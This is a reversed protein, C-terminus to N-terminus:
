DLINKVSDRIIIKRDIEKVRCEGTYTRNIRDFLLNAAHTGYEKSKNDVTTLKPKCASSFSINDMGIVSIEEPIKINNEDFAMMMGIAILDNAACVGTPRESLSSLYMGAKYGAEMTFDMEFCYNENFEINHKELTYIFRKKRKVNVKSNIEGGVYAIKKHGNKILYEAAILTKTKKACVKEFEENNFTGILVIPKKTKSLMELTKYGNFISSFIIGDAGISSFTNIANIEEEKSENTNYLICSYNNKNAINQITKYMSSYFPNSINPVIIMIQFTKSNKFGQAIRNPQYGLLDIANKVDKATKEDVKVTKNIYRSVTAVSVNAKNAVDYITVKKKM